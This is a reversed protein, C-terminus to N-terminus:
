LHGSNTADCYIACGYESGKHSLGWDRRLGSGGNSGGNSSIVLEVGGEAKSAEQRATARFQESIQEPGAGDLPDPGVYIGWFYCGGARGGQLIDGLGKPRCRDQRMMRKMQMWRKRSKSLKGAVATWNDDGVTLVKGMYKFHAVTELPEGYSQFERELSERLGEEAM